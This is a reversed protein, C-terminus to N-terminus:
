YAEKEPKSTETDMTGIFDARGRTRLKSVEQLEAVQKRITLWCVGGVGSPESGRGKSPLFKCVCKQM